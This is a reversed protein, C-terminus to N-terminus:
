PVTPTPGLLQITQGENLVYGTRRDEPLPKQGQPGTWPPPNVTDTVVQLSLTTALVSLGAHAMLHLSRTMAATASPELHTEPNEIILLDGPMVTHRLLLVLPAAQAVAGPAQRIHFKRGAEPGHRPSWLIDPYPLGTRDDLLVDAHIVRDQIFEALEALAPTAAKRHPDITLLAELLSATGTDIGQPWHSNGGQLSSSRIIGAGMLRHHRTIAGRDAPLLHSWNPVPRFPAQIMEERIRHLMLDRHRVIPAALDAALHAPMVLPIHNPHEGDPGALTLHVPPHDQRITVRLEKHHQRTEQTSAELEHMFTERIQHTLAHMERDLLTRATKPLDEPRIPIEEPCGPHHAAHYALANLGDELEGPQRRNDLAPALGPAVRDANPTYPLGRHICHILATLRSKGSGNPGTIVTLPRLDLAAHDIPPHNRVELHLM